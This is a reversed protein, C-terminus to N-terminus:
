INVVDIQFALQANYRERRGTTPSLACYDCFFFKHFSNLFFYSLISYNHQPRYGTTFTYPLTRNNRVDHRVHTRVVNYASNVFPNRILTIIYMM